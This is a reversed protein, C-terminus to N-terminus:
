CNLDKVIKSVPILNFTLKSLRSVFSLIISTAPQVIGFGISDCTSGDAVTIPSPEKHSRFNSFINPNGTLSTIWCQLVLETVYCM